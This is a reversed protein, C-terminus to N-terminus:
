AETVCRKELLALTKENVIRKGIQEKLGAIDIKSEEPQGRASLSDIFSGTEKDIEESTALIDNEKAIKHLILSMDVQKEAEAQWDKRLEDQTKKVHALYLGLEMGQGHLHEDFDAVMNDLQREVLFKSPKIKSEKTLRELIEVRIRQKQKAEKEQKLGNEVSERLAQVTKFNGLSKAFNDDLEPLKVKQVLNIKVKFDLKKGAVSKEYYDAPVALSFTKEEGKGMGILQEEFGPIFNGKGLVLPHNKSVGGEIVKGESTVEFDIEVRDGLETTGDKQSAQARSARLTGLATELEEGSVSISTKKVKASSLDPLNIEPYVALQLSYRLKGPSNEEVKLDSTNIIDLNKEESISSFSGRLADEIAIESIKVQDAYKQVLEKPAKGTRFGDIKLSQSVERGAKDLYKKLDDEDLEVSLQYQIDEIKKLSYHM